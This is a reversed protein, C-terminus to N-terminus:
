VRGPRVDKRQFSGCDGFRSRLPEVGEAM